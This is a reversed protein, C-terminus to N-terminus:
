GFPGLLCCMWIQRLWFHNRQLGVGVALAVTLAALLALALSDTRYGRMSQRFSGLTLQQESLKGPPPGPPPAGNLERQRGAQEKNGRQQAQGDPQQGSHLRHRLGDPQQGLLSASPQAALGQAAASPSLRSPLVRPLDPEAELLLSSAASELQQLVEQSRAPAQLQSPRQSRQAPLVRPLDAEAQLLAM